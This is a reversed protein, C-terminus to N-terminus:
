FGTATIEGGARTGLAVWTVEDINNNIFRVSGDAILFNVGGPHRSTFDDAHGTHNNPLQGEIVTGTHALVFVPWEQDESGPIRSLNKVIGNNVAGTWTAYALNSAREGIAFTNSTGDTIEAFRIHSNRFFLGEGYDPVDLIESTGFMAVFNARAVSGLLNDNANKVEIANPGVDSPCVFVRLFATSATQGGIDASFNITSKVQSQELWDLIHAGWGWGPGPEAFRSGPAPPPGFSDDDDGGPPLAALPQVLGNSIYGPPLSGLSDHYGHLALGIQRIHNSCQRLRAASRASQVAPLLMSVLVGIIAIVVLLEVLTFGRSPKIKRMLEGEM